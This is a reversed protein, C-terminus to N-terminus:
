EISNRDAPCRRPMRLEEQTGNSNVKHAQADSGPVPPSSDPTVGPGVSEVLAVAVAVSVTLRAVLVPAAVGAEVAVVDVTV